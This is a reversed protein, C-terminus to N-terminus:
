QAGRVRLELEGLSMSAGTYVRVGGTTLESVNPVGNSVALSGDRQRYLRFNGQVLGVIVHTGDATATPRLFLVASEGQQFTRVGPVRQGYGGVIGGPQKLVIQEPAAGKLARQVAFRTYTFIITHQPNWASWSDLAQAQVVSDAARTLEEVSMPKITTASAITAVALLGLIITIRKM